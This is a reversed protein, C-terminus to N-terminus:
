LIVDELVEVKEEKKEIDLLVVAVDFQWENRVDKGALYTEITRSLRKLKWPHMNEEARHEGRTPVAFVNGVSKSKVEIFHTKGSKSAVVDIEGWKRTYNREVIEFGRKVLFRCCIDEGLQGTKQTESTFQKM